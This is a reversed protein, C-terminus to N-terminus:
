ELLHTTFIPYTSRKLYFNLWIISIHVLFHPFTFLHQSIHQIFINLILKTFQFHIFRKPHICVCVYVLIMLVSDFMPCLTLSINGWKFWFFSSFFSGTNHAQTRSKNKTHHWYWDHLRIPETRSIGTNVEKLMICLVM